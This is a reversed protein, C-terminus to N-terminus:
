KEDLLSKYEGSLNELEKMEETNLNGSNLYFDSGTGESKETFLKSEQSLTIGMHYSNRQGVIFGSKSKKASTALKSSSGVNETFSLPKKSLSRIKIPTSVVGAENSESHYLSSSCSVGLQGRNNLGCGYV